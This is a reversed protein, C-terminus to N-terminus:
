GGGKMGFLRGQLLLLEEGTLDEDIGTEQLAVGIQLRVQQEQKVVDYGNIEASGGSPRILTTLMQVTTSKGAGNPGLFAFIEGEEVQFSVQKVVEQEGYRKTLEHVRIM